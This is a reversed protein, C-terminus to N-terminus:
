SATGTRACHNGRRISCSRSVNFRMRRRRLLQRMREAHLRDALRRHAKLHSMLEPLVRRAAEATRDIQRPSQMDASSVGSANAGEGVAGKEKQGYDRDAGEVLGVRVRDVRDLELEAEAIERACKRIAPHDIGGAIESARKDLLPDHARAATISVALGYKFANKAASRKDALSQPGKSKRANRANAALQRESTM